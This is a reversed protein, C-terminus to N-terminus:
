YELIDMEITLRAILHSLGPWEGFWGESSEELRYLEDLPNKGDKIRKYTARAMGLTMAQGCAQTYNVQFVSPPTADALVKGLEALGQLASEQAISLLM